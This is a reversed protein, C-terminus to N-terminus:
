EKLDYRFCLAIAIAIAIFYVDDEIGIFEFSPLMETFLDFIDLLGDKGLRAFCPQCVSNIGLMM